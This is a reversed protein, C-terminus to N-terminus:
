SALRPQELAFASSVNLFPWIGWYYLTAENRSRVNLKQYIVTATNRVTQHSIGLRDAIEQNTYGQVLLRLVRREVITLSTRLALVQRYCEGQTTSLIAKPLSWALSHEDLVANPELEWLDELYEPCLNNTIIIIHQHQTRLHAYSNFAFGTPTDIIILTAAHPDHRFGLVELHNIVTNDLLPTGSALAICLPASQPSRTPYTTINPM